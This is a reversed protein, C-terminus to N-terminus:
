AGRCDPTPEGQKVDHECFYKNMDNWVRKKDATWLPAILIRKAGDGTLRHIVINKPIVKLVEGLTFFYEDKEMCTFLGNKYDRAMDTGELVHLLSLKIGDTGSAVAFKASSIMTELSEGPLGLILHTVVHIKNSASKIRRIGDVYVDNSFCRRFSAASKEDSTQLGLELQVFTKEAIRAISFLIEDSLCDPRTAISIGSVNEASLAELYKKELEKEDGYTNTFNQFYAIFTGDKCKKEVLAKAQNIQETISLKRSSAFDGSGSESCFTCGGWGKSGDRTPCTCGADLAIKYAKCGFLSKYFDSVSNYRFM